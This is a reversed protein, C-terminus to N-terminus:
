VLCREHQFIFIRIRKRKGVFKERPAFPFDVDCSQLISPLEHGRKAAAAKVLRAFIQAHRLWAITELADSHEQETYEDTILGDSEGTGRMDVRVAAYGHGALYPQRRADRVATGDTKRYPLYELLAPVPDDEADEPLWIRAALRTGDSLSIWTHEIERVTRPFDTRIRDTM